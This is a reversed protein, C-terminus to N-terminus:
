YERFMSLLSLRPCGWGVGWLCLWDAPCAATPDSRDHPEPRRPCQRVVAGEGGRGTGEEGVSGGLAATQVRYARSERSGRELNFDQRLLAEARGRGCSVRGGSDRSRALVAEKQRFHLRAGTPSDM